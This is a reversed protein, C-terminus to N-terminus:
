PFVQFTCSVDFSISLRAEHILENIQHNLYMNCTLCMVKPKAWMFTLVLTVIVSVNYLLFNLSFSFRGFVWLWVTAFSSAFIFTPITLKVKRNEVLQNSLNDRLLSYCQPINIITLTNQCHFSTSKPANNKFFSFINGM